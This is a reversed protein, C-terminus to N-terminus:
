RKASRGEEGGTSERGHKKGVRSEKMMQDMVWLVDDVMEMFIKQQGANKLGVSWAALSVVINFFGNISGKRLEKWEEGEDVKQSWKKGNQGRSKPQLAAWWEKWSAAFALLDDIIPLAKRGGNIWRKIVDPRGTTLLAM